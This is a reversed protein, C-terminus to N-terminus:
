FVEGVPIALGPLVDEGTVVDDTRLLSSSGDARYVVLTQKKPDVVWVLKVGAEFYEVRKREIEKKTNTGSLVEVALEPPFPLVAYKALDKKKNPFHRWSVFAVDPMRMTTRLQFGGSECTLFGLDHKRLYAKLHYILDATMRSENSGMPKEVLTKAVWECLRKPEGDMLRIADQMTARGPAPDMLVRELPVHGLRDMLDALTRRHALTNEAVASMGVRWRSEM